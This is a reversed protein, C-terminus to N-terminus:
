PTVGFMVRQSLRKAAIECYREEIEIGIARRSELSAALLTTGSGMFPDLVCGSPLRSLFWRWANLPKPCPHDPKETTGVAFRRCDTEKRFEIDGYLLCAIWNGYGVAGRTMGNTLHASLTWKYRLGGLMVPAEVVRSLGPTYAVALVSPGFPPLPLSHEDWMAKDAGYPPDTLVCSANEVSMSFERCDGHYITIGDREYYPKM